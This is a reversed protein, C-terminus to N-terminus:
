GFIDVVNVFVTGVDTSGDRDVLTYQFSDTGSFNTPATYAITGDQASGEPGWSSIDVGKATTKDVAKVDLGGDAGKDNFMFYRSNVWLTKGAQVSYSDDVATVGNGSGASPSPSPAPAPAPSSSGPNGVTIVMKATDSSGDKDVVTYGITDTGVFGAKAKYVITGIDNWSVSVGQASTKDVQTVKLGGDAGKDNWTLFRSNEWLTKGPDLKYKTDDVAHVPNGSGADSSDSPAPEPAPAPQSGPNGVTIVMKGTDSSGNNGVVTYGVTDTGVFGAKAKYVITGDAAWSVSVGQASTKDVQTVKLGGDGGKDNWTLYRSNEWLTKGPDLKYKTDDVAYVANGTGSSTDPAPA